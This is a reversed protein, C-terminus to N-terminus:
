QKLRNKNPHKIWATLECLWKPSHFDLLTIETVIMQDDRSSCSGFIYLLALQHADCLNGFSHILGLVFWLLTKSAATNTNSGKVWKQSRSLPLLTLFHFLACISILYDTPSILRLYYKFLANDLPKLHETHKMNWWLATHSNCCFIHNM